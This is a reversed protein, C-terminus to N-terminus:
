PSASHLAAQVDVPKVVPVDLVLARSDGSITASWNPDPVTEALLTAIAGASTQSLYGWAMFLQIQNQLATMDRVLLADIVMQVSWTPAAKIAVVDAQEIVAFVDKLTVRRPVNGQEVPNPISPRDNLAAAAQEYTLGDYANGELENALIALQQENM